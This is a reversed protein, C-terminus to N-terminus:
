IVMAGPKEQCGKKQCWSWFKVGANGQWSTLKVPELLPSSFSPCLETLSLVVAVTSVAGQLVCNGFQQCLLHSLVWSEELVLAAVRWMSTSIPCSLVCALHWVVGSHRMRGRQESVNSWTFRFFPFATTGALAPDWQRLSRELLLVSSFVRGEEARM